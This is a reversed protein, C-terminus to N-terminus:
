KEGSKMPITCIPLVSYQFKQDIATSYACWCKKADGKEKESTWSVNNTGILISIDAITGHEEIWGNLLIPSFHCRRIGDSYHDM